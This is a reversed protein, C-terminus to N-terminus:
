ESGRAISDESEISVLVRDAEIKIPYRRIPDEAPSALPQGTRIDFRGGHLPCVIEFGELDGQDLYGLAHSCLGDVAYFTDAVRAIVVLRDGLEVGLMEDNALESTQCAPIYRM